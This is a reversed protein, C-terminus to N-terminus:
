PSAPSFGLDAAVTVLEAARSRPGRLLVDTAQDPVTTPVLRHDQIAFLQTNTPFPRGQQEALVIATGNRALANVMAHVATTGHDDLGAAFEDIVILPEGSTLAEALLLKRLNGFSLDALRKSLDSDFGLRQL